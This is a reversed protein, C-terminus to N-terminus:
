QGEEGQLIAYVGTFLGDLVFCLVDNYGPYEFSNESIEYYLLADYSNFGSKSYTIFTIFYKWYQESNGTYIKRLLRMEIKISYTEVEFCTKHLSCDKKLV